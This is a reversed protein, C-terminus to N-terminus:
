SQINRMTRSARAILREIMLVDDGDVVDTLDLAVMVNRSLVNLAAGQARLHEARLQRHTRREVNCRLDRARELRRMRIADHM